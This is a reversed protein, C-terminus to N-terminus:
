AASTMRRTATTAPGPAATPDSLGMPAGSWASATTAWCHDGGAGNLLTDAQADLRQERVLQRAALARAQADLVLPPDILQDAADDAVFPTGLVGLFVPLEHPLVHEGRHSGQPRQRFMKGVGVDLLHPDVAGLRAEHEAASQSHLDRGRELILRRQDLEHVPVRVPRGARAKIARARGHGHRQGLAAPQM